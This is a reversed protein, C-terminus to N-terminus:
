GDLAEGHLVDTWTETRFAAEANSRGGGAKAERDWTDATVGQERLMFKQVKETPTKPLSPAFRIYRPVMFKAMGRECHLALEEACLQSDLRRVVTIM